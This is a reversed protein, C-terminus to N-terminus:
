TCDALRMHSSHSLAGPPDKNQGAAGSAGENGPNAGGTWWHMWSDGVGAQQQQQASQAKGPPKPKPRLKAPSGEPLQPDVGHQATSIPIAPSDEPVSAPQRANLRPTSRPGGGSHPGSRPGPRPGSRPGHMNDSTRASLPTPTRAGTAVTGALAAAAVELAEQVASNTSASVVGAAHAGAAVAAKQTAEPAGSGEASGRRGSASRLATDGASEVSGRRSAGAGSIAVQVGSGANEVSGHRSPAATAGLAVNHAALAASGTSVRRGSAAGSMPTGSLPTQQQHGGASGLRPTMNGSSVALVPQIHVSQSPDVNGQARGGEPSPALVPQIHISKDVPSSNSFFTGKGGFVAGFGLAPSGSRGASRVSKGGSGGAAAPPTASGPRRLAHPKEPSSNAGVFQEPSPRPRAPLPPTTVSQEIDLLGPTLLGQPNAVSYVRNTNTPTTPRRLNQGASEPRTQDLEAFAHRTVPPPPTEDSERTNDNFGRPTPNFINRYSNPVELDEVSYTDTRGTSPASLEGM